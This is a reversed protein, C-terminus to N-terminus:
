FIRKERNTLKEALHDLMSRALALCETEADYQARPPGVYRQASSFPLTLILAADELRAPWLHADDFSAACQPTLQNSSSCVTLLYQLHQESPFVLSTGYSRLGHHTRSGDHAAEVKLATHSPHQYPCCSM